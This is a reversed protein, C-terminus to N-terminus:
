LINLGYACEFSCYASDDNSEFRKGCESCVKKMRTEM